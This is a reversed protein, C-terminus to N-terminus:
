YSALTELIFASSSIGYCYKDVKADLAGGFSVENGSDIRM